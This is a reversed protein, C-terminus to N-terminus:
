VYRKRYVIFFVGVVLASAAVGITMGVGIAAPVGAFSVYLEMSLVTLLAMIAASFLNLCTMPSQLIYKNFCKQLKM